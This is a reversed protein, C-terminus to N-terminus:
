VRLAIKGGVVGAFLSGKGLDSSRKTGGAFISGGISGTLSASSRNIGGVSRSSRDSRPEEEFFPPLFFYIAEQVFYRIAM